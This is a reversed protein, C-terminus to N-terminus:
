SKRRRTRTAYAKALERVARRMADRLEAPELAEVGPGLKLLEGVAAEISEIPITLVHWGDADASRAGDASEAGGATGAGDATGPVDVARAGAVARAMAAGLRALPRLAEPRVRVKATRALMRQEYDNAFRRWYGVLEFRPPVTAPADEVRLELISGVRYTRPQAGSAAVLYWVGAKLVLGLPAVRREVVGSWREYRLSLMRGLWVASALEPLIRQEDPAQFWAVPDVHFRAAVREADSASARPLAALLKLRTTAHAPGLGLQEAAFPIGAFFLSEAEPRDLGTLRTRYGDRLAFGGSRGREAYVPVGAASLADIDRYITRLSVEFAEALARASVRGEHQLRLLISLLRSAQM